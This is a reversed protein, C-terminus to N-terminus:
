ADLPHVTIVRETWMPGPAEDHKICIVHRHKAPRCLMCKMLLGLCNKVFLIDILHDDASQCTTHVSSIHEAHWLQTESYKSWLLSGRIQLRTCKGGISWNPCQTLESRSACATSLMAKTQSKMLMWKLSLEQRLSQQCASCFCGQPDHPDPVGIQSTQLHLQSLVAQRASVATPLHWVTCGVLQQIHGGATAGLYKCQYRDATSSHPPAALLRPHQCHPQWKSQAHM